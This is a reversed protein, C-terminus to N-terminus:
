GYKWVYYKLIYPWESIKLSKTMYKKGLSGWVYLDPFLFTSCVHCVRLSLCFTLWLKLLFNQDNTMFLINGPIGKRHMGTLCHSTCRGQNLACFWIFCCMSTADANLSIVNLTESRSYYTSTSVRTRSKMLDAFQFEPM